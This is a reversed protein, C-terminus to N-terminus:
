TYVDTFCATEHPFRCRFRSFMPAAGGHDAGVTRNAEEQEASAIQEAIVKRLLPFDKKDVQANSEWLKGRNLAKACQFYVERVTVKIASKPLRGRDELQQLEDLM